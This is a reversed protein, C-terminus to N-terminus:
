NLIHDIVDKMLPVISANNTIIKINIIGDNNLFEQVLVPMNGLINTSFFSTPPNAKNQKASLYINNREFIM